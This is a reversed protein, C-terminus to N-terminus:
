EEKPQVVDELWGPVCSKAADPTTHDFYQDVGGHRSLHKLRKASVERGEEPTMLIHPTILLIIESRTDQKQNRSFLTGLYPVDGLFPVKSRNLSTEKRILGGIAITKGDEGVVTGEVNATSVTDVFESRGGGTPIRAVAPNVNSSDQFIRLAVTRDANIRPIIELTIGIDRLNIEPTEVIIPSAESPIITETEFGEVVPRQEGVFLRAVSNNACLLMPTALAKLRNKSALLQMRVRVNDDLFQYILTSAPNLPFNGVGAINRRGFLDTPDLPNPQRGDALTERQQSALVSVDFASEFGDGLQVQFVKVELLVQPVPRDLELIFRELDQMTRPDSTRIIVLNHQRNITVYIPPQQATLGRLMERPDKGEVAGQAEISALQEPTLGRVKQTEDFGETTRGINIDNRVFQRRRSRQDVDEVRRRSEARSFGTTGGIVDGDVNVNSGSAIGPNRGFLGDEEIDGLSLIVRDGYLDEIAQAVAVANPYLLQFVRTQDERYVILDKQYEEATMLRVVNTGPDQRYWLGSVKCLTVLALMAPTRQLNLTVTKKAADETAVINLGTVEALLQAAELVPVQKLHLKELM